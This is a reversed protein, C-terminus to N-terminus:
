CARTKEPPLIIETPIASISNRNNNKCIARLEAALAAQRTPFLQLEVRAILTHWASQKHAYRRSTVDFTVGIYLLTEDAAFHRYLYAPRDTMVAPVRRDRGATDAASEGSRR